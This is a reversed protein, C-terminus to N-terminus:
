QLEIIDNVYSPPTTFGIIGSAGEEIIIMGNVETRPSLGSNTSFIATTDIGLIVHDGFGIIPNNATCSKDKDQLITIGFSTSDGFKGNTLINGNVDSSNIHQNTGGFDLIHKETGETIEILTTQLDIDPSGPKPMIEIALKTIKGSENYGEVGFVTLGASTKTITDQGTQLTQMELQTGTQVLISAAIGAVLVIAIFIIMAGIGMAGSKNGDNKRICGM